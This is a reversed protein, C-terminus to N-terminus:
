RPGPFEGRLPGTVRFINGNSSTMMNYGLLKATLAENISLLGCTYMNQQTKNQNLIDNSKDINVLTVESAVPCYYAQRQTLSVIGFFMPLSMSSIITSGFCSLACYLPTRIKHYM